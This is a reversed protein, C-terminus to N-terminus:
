FLETFLYPDLNLTIMPLKFVEQDREFDGNLRLFNSLEGVIPFLSLLSIFFELSYFSLPFVNFILVEAECSYSFSAADGGYNLSLFLQELLSLM